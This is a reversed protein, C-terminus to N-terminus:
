HPLGAAKGCLIANTPIAYENSFSQEPTWVRLYLQQGLYQRDWIASRLNWMGQNDLSVLIASWGNPYVQVTHRAQADVLNYTQRQTENWQGDGYGVVWFDYGDLHWSQLESETNQFVVEVFEHLGLRLVPTGARPAADPRVPLTDWDIVDAINYNDALKLPTDPVVFSVGNVACRRRGGGAVDVPASSSSALVLTRSTPIAGYHFSGQPNPRAASATLNWRFSRAQNLSWGYDFPGAAPPALPLPGPARATAGAYHLTAVATLENTPTFRTSAVVAYDLPPQDLTVLFALSQGAHVDLSDYVNQVPHTGEVEVLRLAHGQIRFNVSARLGVNSVRFLYTGGRDGVFTGGSPAGNILLADPPPLAGTADLDRRLDAHPSAAAYWDGVLLTFDGAPPPYPVPIAPRQYVNLAGFGGAARHLALSPFYFFTGIQDKTQFRYTYNGGRPPIACNTGAVGDQWSNKRQKIGNWTLLFPEDLANIVTVVLNDNTVCDIRPGPFQGNILIGQQTTGLPTIPGYTVTWTFYRYPDDAGALAALLLLLLFPAPPPPAM